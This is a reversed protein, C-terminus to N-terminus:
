PKFEALIKDYTGNAKLKKLGADFRDALYQGRQTAKSFLIFFESESVIKPHHTFLSADQHGFTKKLTVYGVRKSTQYVDIRGVRMKRFNLEESNVMDAPIGKSKYIAEEKFGITVGVRYRKLDELTAWDFPVTKLHFFVNEDKLLSTKPFYFDKLRADTKNWPMTGDFDGNAALLYSRQWPFYAYEVHIGELAFAQRTVKELMKGEPDTDSTYPAWEGVALRVTESASAAAMMQLVLSLACVLKWM